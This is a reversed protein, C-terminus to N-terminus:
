PMAGEVPAPRPAVGWTPIGTVTGDRRLDVIGFSLIM